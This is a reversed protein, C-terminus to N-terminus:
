VRGVDKTGATVCTDVSSPSAEVTLSTLGTAPGM